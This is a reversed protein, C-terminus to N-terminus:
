TTPITSAMLSLPLAERDSGSPDRVESYVARGMGAVSGPQASPLTM